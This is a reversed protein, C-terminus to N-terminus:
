PQILEKSRLAWVYGSAGHDLGKFPRVGDHIYTNYDIYRILTKKFQLHHLIGKENLHNTLESLMYSFGKSAAVAMARFNVQKSLGQGRYEEDVATIFLHALYHPSFTQNKLFSSTLDDLLAFIYQFKPSLEINLNVPDTIDEVLACAVIKEGDLAVVSLGSTATKKAVKEAFVSFSAYDMDVYKTMPESDCFSRTFMSIVGKIHKKKMIDYRYSHNRSIQKLINRALYQKGTNDM